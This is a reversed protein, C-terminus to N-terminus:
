PKFVYSVLSLKNRNLFFFVTMCLKGVIQAASSNGDSQLSASFTGDGLSM